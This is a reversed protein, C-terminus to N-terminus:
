AVALAAQHSVLHGWPDDRIARQAFRVGLSHSVIIDEQVGKSWVVTGKQRIATASDHSRLSIDVATGVPVDTYTRFNLGGYSVDSMTCHFTHHELHPAGPASVFTVTIRERTDIRDETRRETM